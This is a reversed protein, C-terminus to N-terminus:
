PGTSEQMTANQSHSISACYATFHHGGCPPSNGGNAFLIEDGIKGVPIVHVYIAGDEGKGDREKEEQGYNGWILNGWIL